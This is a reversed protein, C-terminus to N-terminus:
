VYMYIKYFRDEKTGPLEMMNPPGEKIRHCLIPNNHDDM